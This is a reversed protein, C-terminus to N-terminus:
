QGQFHMCSAAGTIMSWTFVYRFGGTTLINQRMRAAALFFVSSSKKDISFCPTWLFLHPWSSNVTAWYMRIDRNKKKNLLDIVIPEPHLVLAPGWQPSSRQPTRPSARYLPCPQGQWTRKWSEPWNIGFSCTRITGLREPRINIETFSPQSSIANMTNQKKGGRWSLFHFM